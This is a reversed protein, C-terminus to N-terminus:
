APILNKALYLREDGNEKRCRVADYDRWRHGVSIVELEGGPGRVRCGCMTRVKDGISINYWRTDTPRTLAERAIKKVEPFNIRRAEIEILAAMYKRREELARHVAKCKESHCWLAGDGDYDDPGCFCEDPGFIYDKQWDHM